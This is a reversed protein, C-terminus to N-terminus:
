KKIVASYMEQGERLEELKLGSQNILERIEAETFRHSFFCSGIGTVTVTIDHTNKQYFFQPTANFNKQVAKWFWGLQAYFEAERFWKEEVKKKFRLWPHRYEVRQKDPIKSFEVIFRDEKTMLWKVTSLLKMRDERITNNITGFFLIFIKPSDIAKIKEQSNAFTVFDDKILVIPIPFNNWVRRSFALMSESYDIGIIKKINKNDKLLVLERGTGLGMDIMVAKKNKSFKEIYDNAWELDNGRYDFEGKGFLKHYIKPTESYQFFLKIWSSSTWFLSKFSWQDFIKRLYHTESWGSNIGVAEILAKGLGERCAVAFVSEPFYPHVCFSLDRIVTRGRDNNNKGNIEEFSKQESVILGALGKEVIANFQGIFNNVSEEIKEKKESFLFLSHESEGNLGFSSLIKEIEEVKIGYVDRRHRLSMIEDSGIFRTDIGKTTSYGCAISLIVNLPNRDIAQLRAATGDSFAVKKWITKGNETKWKKIHFPVEIAYIRKGKLFAEKLILSKELSDKLYVTVDKPTQHEILKATKLFQKEATVLRKTYYEPRSLFEAMSQSIGKASNVKWRYLYDPSTSNPFYETSNTIWKKM